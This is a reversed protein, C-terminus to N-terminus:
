LSSMIVILYLTPFLKWFNYAPCRPPETLLADAKPEPWSRPTRPDLGVNPERSLMSGAEGKGETGRGGGSIHEREREREGWRLYIFLIKFFFFSFTLSQDVWVKPAIEQLCKFKGLSIKCSKRFVKRCGFSTTRISQVDLIAPFM